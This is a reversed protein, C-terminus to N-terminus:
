PFPASTETNRKSGAMKLFEEIAQFREMKPHFTGIKERREATAAGKSNRSVERAAGGSYHRANTCPARGTRDSAKM